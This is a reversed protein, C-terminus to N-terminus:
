HRAEVRLNGKVINKESSSATIESKITKSTNLKKNLTETAQLNKSELGIDLRNNRFTFSKFNIDKTEQNLGSFSEELMFLLGNTANGSANKLEKLKQEM